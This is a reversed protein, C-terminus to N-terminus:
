SVDPLSLWSVFIDEYHSAIKSIKNQKVNKKKLYKDNKHGSYSQWNDINLM